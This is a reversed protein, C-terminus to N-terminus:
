IVGTGKKRNRATPDDVGLRLLMYCLLLVVGFCGGGLRPVM